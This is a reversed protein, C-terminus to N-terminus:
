LCCGPFFNISYITLKGNQVITGHVLAFGGVCLNMIAAVAFLLMIRGKDENLAFYGENWICYVIWVGIGMFSGIVILVELEACMPFEAINMCLFLGNCILMTFFGYKFGKGRIVEQREDFRCKKSKDTKTKVLILRTLLIAFIIGCVIVIGSYNMNM